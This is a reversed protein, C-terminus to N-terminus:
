KKNKAGCRLTFEYLLDYSGRDAEKLASIYVKRSKGEKELDNPWLPRKANLTHLFLDAIFRAHRGNGNIFPHIKVLRHHIRISQQLVDISSSEPWFKVDECLLALESPILHPKTGINTTTKRFLGTWKWINGFMELHVRKLFSLTFWKNKYNLPRLFYKKYAKLINEAEVLNLQDITQVWDLKIGSFDLIPTCGDIHKTQSNKM